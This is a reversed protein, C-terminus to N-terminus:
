GVLRHMGPGNDEDDRAESSADDSAEELLDDPM